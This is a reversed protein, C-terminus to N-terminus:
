IKILDDKNFNYKSKKKILKFLYEPKLGNGPRKISLKELSFKEGKIIKKKAVISKRVHKINKKESKTIIKNQSSFFKEVKRISSVFLKFQVFDLSSSHDPGIMKRDLTFHKEIIKAGKAM